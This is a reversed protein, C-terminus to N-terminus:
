PITEVYVLLVAVMAPGGLFGVVTLARIYELFWYRVERKYLCIMSQKDKEDRKKVRSSIM